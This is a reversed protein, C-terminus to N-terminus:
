AEPDSPKGKYNWIYVEALGDNTFDKDDSHVFGGKESHVLRVVDGGKVFYGDPDENYYRYIQIMFKSKGSSLNVECQPVYMNPPVRRDNDKPCIKKMGTALTEPVRGDLGDIKLFRETVHLYMGYSVNQLVIQDNYHIRDGEQKYKFGGLTKFYIEKTGHTALEVKNCSNDEDACGRRGRVFSETDVHLLQIENGYEVYEGMRVLFSKKNQVAEDKMKRELAQVKRKYHDRDRKMQQSLARAVPPAGFFSTQSAHDEPDSGGEDEEVGSRGARKTPGSGEGRAAAAEADGDDHEVFTQSYFQLAAEYDRRADYNLKPMVQFVFDRKNRTFCEQHQEPNIQLYVNPNACGQSAVNGHLHEL